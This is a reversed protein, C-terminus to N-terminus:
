PQANRIFNVMGEHIARAAKMIYEKDRLKTEEGPNSIFTVEVLVAPMSTQRIVHFSRCIHANKEEGLSRALSENISKALELSQLWYFYTYTGRAVRGEKVDALANNHISVFITGGNERARDVRAQLEDSAPSDDPTLDDDRDRTLVVTAGSEELLRKLDLSIALNAEKEHLGGAGVAGSNRGGHGPDVIVKLGKLSKKDSLIPPSKMRLTFVTDKFSGEFGWLSSALNIRLTLSGSTNEVFEMNRLVDNKSRYLMEFLSSTANHFTVCLSTSAPSDNLSFACKESFTFDIVCDRGEKRSAINKLLPQSAQAGEPLIRISSVNVWCDNNHLKLRYWEGYRGCIEARTSEPLLAVRDFDSGAGNRLVAEKETCSGIVPIARGLLKISGTFPIVSETKDKMLVILDGDITKNATGAIRIVGTYLGPKEEYLPISEALPLLSFSAQVGPPGNVAVRFFDGEMVWIEKEPYVIRAANREEAWASTIPLMFLLILIFRIFLSLTNKGCRSGPFSIQENSSEKRIMIM